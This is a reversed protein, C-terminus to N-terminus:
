LVMILCSLSLFRCGSQIHRTLCSRNILGYITSSSRFGHLVLYIDPISIHYGVRVISRLPDKCHTGRIVTGCLQAACTLCVSHVHSDVPLHLNWQESTSSRGTNVDYLTTAVKSSNSVDRHHTSVLHCCLRMTGAVIMELVSTVVVNM